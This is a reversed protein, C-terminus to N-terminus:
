KQPDAERAAAGAGSVGGAGGAGVVGGKGGATAGERQHPRKRPTARRVGPGPFRRDAYVREM